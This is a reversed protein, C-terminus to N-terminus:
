TDRYLNLHTSYEHLNLYFHCFNQCLYVPLGIWTLFIIHGRIQYKSVEIFFDLIKCVYVVTMETFCVHIIFRTCM